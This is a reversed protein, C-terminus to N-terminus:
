AVPAVPIVVGEHLEGDDGIIDVEAEVSDVGAQYVEIGRDPIRQVRPDREIVGRYENALDSMREDTLKGNIPSTERALAFSLDQGLMPIGSITALSGADNVVLDWPLPEDSSDGHESRAEALKLGAGFAEIDTVAEREPPGRKEVLQEARTERQDPPSEGEGYRSEGFDTEGYVM